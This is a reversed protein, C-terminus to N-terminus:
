EQAADDAPAAPTPAGTSAAQANLAEEILAAKDPWRSATQDLLETLNMNRDVEARAYTRM